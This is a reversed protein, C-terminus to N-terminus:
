WYVVVIAAADVSVANVAPVAAIEHVAAGARVSVAALVSVPNVAPLAESVCPPVAGGVVSVAADVSVPIVAPEAAIVHVPGGAVVSVPELV